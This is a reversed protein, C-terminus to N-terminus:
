LRGRRTDADPGEPGRPEADDRDVSDDRQAGLWQIRLQAFADAQDLMIVGLSFLELVALFRAVIVQVGAADAVLESFSLEGSRHVRSRVIEAQERVSVRPPHLPELPVTPATRPAMTQAAVRAFQTPGIGLVLEPLLTAFRPELGAQRPWFRGEAALRGAFWDAVEKFARYQLLRAFLLDRAELLAVDEEDDAASSTPLLRSAKVDLLTAAVLLFETAQSLDWAQGVGREAGAAGQRLRMQAIFEDTVQALAVETIDVTHRSILGLLLDFPGSFVALHVEFPDPRSQKTLVGGPVAARGDIM